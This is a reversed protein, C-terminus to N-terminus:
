YSSQIDAEIGERCVFLMPIPVAVLLVLIAAGAIGLINTTAVDPKHSASKGQVGKGAVRLLGSLVKGSEILKEVRKQSEEFFIRGSIHDPSIAEVIAQTALDMADEKHWVGPVGFNYVKIYTESYKQVTKWSYFLWNMSQM